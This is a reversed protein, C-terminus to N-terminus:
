QVALPQAPYRMVGDEVQVLYMGKALGSTNLEIRNAGETAQFSQTLVVQGATNVLRIYVPKDGTHHFSVQVTKDAPNPFLTVANGVKDAAAMPDPHTSNGNSGLERPLACNYTYTVTLRPRLAPTAHDSSAFHVGRYHAETQLQLMFGFNQGSNVMDQILTTVNLAQNWNYQTASAPIALQNTTTTTPQTNWTVTSESWTSTVRKVWGPNTPHPSGPYYSNDRYLTGTPFGFLELQASVITAGAPITSVDTFRIFSRMTGSNCGNAYFTWDLYPIADENGYNINAPTVTSFDPICNGDLMFVYADHGCNPGPQTIITRTTTTVVQSFAQGALLCALSATFITKM